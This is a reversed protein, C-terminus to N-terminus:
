KGRLLWRHCLKLATKFFKTYFAIRPEHQFAQILEIRKDAMRGAVGLFRQARGTSALDDANMLLPGNGAVSSDVGQHNRLPSGSETKLYLEAARGRSM